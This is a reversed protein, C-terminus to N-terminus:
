LSEGEDKARKKLRASAEEWPILDLEFDSPLLDWCEKLARFYKKAPLGKVILDIDSGYHVPKSFVTSGILYVESM